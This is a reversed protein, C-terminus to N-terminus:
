SRRANDSITEGRMTWPRLRFCHATLRVQTDSVELVWDVGEGGLYVQISKNSKSATYIRLLLDLIGFYSAFLAVIHIKEKGRIKKRAKVEWLWLPM